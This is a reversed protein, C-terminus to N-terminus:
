PQHLWVVLAAMLAKAAGRDLTVYNSVPSECQADGVFLRLKLNQEDLDAPELVLYDSPDDWCRVIIYTAEGPSTM